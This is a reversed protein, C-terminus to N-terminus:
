LSELIEKAGKASAEIMGSPGGGNLLIWGEQAIIKGVEPVYREECPKLFRSSGM